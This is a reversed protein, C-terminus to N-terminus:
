HLGFAARLELALVQFGLGSHAYSELAEQLRGLAADAQAREAPSRHRWIYALAEPLWTADQTWSKELETAATLAAFMGEQLAADFTRAQALAEAVATTQQLVGGRGAAFALLEPDSGTQALQADSLPAVNLRASRSVITPLVSRLDEALFLFLARHPPEEVLKLLANAAEPVFYEAGDVIVVRRSFTPRVELFEYAHVEFEKGRDRGSLVAGIPILKRRAAKGTSTTTRPEMLLLDPHAGAALALCSPCRGCAEGSIGREGTCNQAAAIAYALAKKGVRAPGHLLLANGGFSLSQELLATHLTGLTM